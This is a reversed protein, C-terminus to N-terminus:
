SGPDREEVRFGDYSKEDRPEELGGQSTEEKAGTVVEGMAGVKAGGSGDGRKRLKGSLKSRQEFILYLAQRPRKSRGYKAPDIEIDNNCRGIAKTADQGKMEPHDEDM